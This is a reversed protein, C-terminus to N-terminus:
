RPPMAPQQYHDAIVRAMAGIKDTGVEKASFFIHGRAEPYGQALGQVLRPVRRLRRGPPVGGFQRPVERQGAPVLLCAPM